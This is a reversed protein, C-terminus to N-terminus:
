DILHQPSWLEVAGYGASVHLRQCRMVEVTERARACESVCVCVRAGVCVCVFARACMATYVAFRM